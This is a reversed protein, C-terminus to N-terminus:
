KGREQRETEEPEAAAQGGLSRFVEFFGPYSKAVSEAGAIETPGDAASGAVAAAMAIRHDGFAEARGGRLGGGAIRMEQESAEARGGLSRILRLVTEVRDSEKLRLRAIRRIVTEGEAFAATVALAPVLDPIDGADVSIGRLSGRRVTVRDEEETVRAGFDRLLALMARDGQASARDLGACTVGAESLAGAALWFAAGSWDGEVTVRGPSRYRQGGPVRLADKERIVRIGFRELTRLTIEVYSASELPSTLRIESNGELLPLALLLGTIFQSSVNGALQFRGATLQGEMRLPFRGQPSFRVGHASMEEYLPSLPREALKGQGTFATRIGLAAAVPLMFRLTSGSEGCDMEASEAREGPRLILNEGEARIRCGMAELCRCTARADASPAVREVRTEEGSLAAAILMRHTVSKSSIVPNVEGALPRPSILMRM